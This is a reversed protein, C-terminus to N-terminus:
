YHPPRETETESAASDANERYESLKERILGLERIIFDLSSSQESAFSNLEDTLREQHSIKEELQVIRQEADFSPTGAKKKKNAM